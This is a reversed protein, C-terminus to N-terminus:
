VFSPDSRFFAIVRDIIEELSVKPSFGTVRALKSIDPVRRPMDEFGPEYARDYPIKVIKSSSKSREKILEALQHISIERNGGINFVEGFAQEHKPLRILAEVVDTVYTFTRSQTGDGYVTIDANQLAQRVFTPVVMGYQSTQRPGVTNFLRAVIVPLKKKRHYSIALFEDIAKSCAYSWRSHTTPGFVMDDEERFPSSSNKGYVESTSTLLLPKRWKNALHLAVETGRINTEITAVPDSVILKVGVAAALHYILDTAQVLPELTQLNTISEVILHFKPNKELHEVNRTQGTSLDDILTASHGDALLREALHSGVFGSGGTILVNM